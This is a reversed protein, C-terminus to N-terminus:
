SAVFIHRLEDVRIHRQHVRHRILIQVFRPNYTLKPNSGVLDNIVKGQNPIGNVVNRTNMLTSGLRRNFPKRGVVAKVAHDGM